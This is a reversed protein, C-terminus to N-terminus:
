VIEFYESDHSSSTLESGEYLVPTDLAMTVWELADRGEHGLLGVENVEGRTGELSGFPCGLVDRDGVIVALPM